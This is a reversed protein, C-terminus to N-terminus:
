FLLRKGYRFPPKKTSREKSMRLYLLRLSQTRSKESDTQDLIVQQIPLAMDIGQILLLQM